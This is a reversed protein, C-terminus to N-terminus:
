LFSNIAVKSRDCNLGSVTILKANRLDDSSLNSLGDFINLIDKLHNGQIGTMARSM